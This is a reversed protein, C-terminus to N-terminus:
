RLVKISVKGLIVRENRGERPDQACDRGGDRQWRDGLVESGKSCGDGGEGLGIGGERRLEGCRRGGGGLETEVRGLGVRVRVRSRM